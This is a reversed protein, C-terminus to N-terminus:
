GNALAPHHGFVTETWNVCLSPLAFVLGTVLALASIAAGVIWLAIVLSVLFEHFRESADM